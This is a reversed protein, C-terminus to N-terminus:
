YAYREIADTFTILEDLTGYSDYTDDIATLLATTKASIIRGLSHQPEFFMGLGYFYSEVLRARSYPLKSVIESENGWRDRSDLICIYFYRVLHEHIEM